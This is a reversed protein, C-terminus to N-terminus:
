QTVDIMRVFKFQKNEYTYQFIACNPIGNKIVERYNDNWQILFQKCSGSHSVALVCEHEPREMIDTCAQVVRERVQIKSEGGFQLYYDERMQENPHLDESEGEYTGFNIEKLGKIREYPMKHQTAIEATDCARESTSSYLHDIDINAFFKAASEAQTIGKETLPSDCWGQIKRRLNFLTQGHRMLYFTKAM